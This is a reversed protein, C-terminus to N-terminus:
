KVFLYYLRGEGRTTGALAEKEPGTGYFLDCRGASRIAGGTDQDLAFFSVPRAAPSDVPLTASVYALCARPFVSKDTAISRLPTLPENLSGYPGGERFTFFVFSENRHLYAAVEAPHRRFYERIAALSLDSKRIKGEKVLEMGISTYPRDTKGAYGVRVERGDTLRIRASGQVHIVFADFPDKLYVLELGRLLNGEEIERRTFYPVFRGDPMRRGLPTGEADRALDEPLRYLPYQFPGQRTLSGEYVPEFYGTFLVTGAMDWGVSEYVEFERVVAQQLESGSTSRDLIERFRRLSRVARDHSVDLYPFYKKSSPKALYSLSRDIAERLGERHEWGRSFDPYQAPDTIKRLAMMGAPLERAYDPAERAACAALLPLGPLLHGITRM